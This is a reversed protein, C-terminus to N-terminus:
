TVELVALDLLFGWERLRDVGLSCVEFVEWRGDHTDVLAVREAVFAQDEVAEQACGTYSAGRPRNM